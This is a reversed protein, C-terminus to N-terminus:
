TSRSKSYSAKVWDTFFAFDSALGARWPFDPLGQVWDLRFAGDLGGQRPKAASHGDRRPPEKARVGISFVRSRFPSSTALPNHYKPPM